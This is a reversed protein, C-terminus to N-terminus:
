EQEKLWAAAIAKRTNFVWGVSRELRDAIEQYTYGALLLSLVQRQEDLLSDAFSYVEVAALTSDQKTNAQEKLRRMAEGSQKIYRRYGATRQPVTVPLTSLEYKAMAQVYMMSNFKLAAEEDQTTNIHEILALVCVSIFDERKNKRLTYCHSIYRNVIIIIRPMANEIHENMTTANMSM